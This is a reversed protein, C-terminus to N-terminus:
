RLLLNYFTLATCMVGDIDTGDQILQFLADKSMFTTQINESPELKVAHTVIADKALVITMKQALIGPLPYCSGLVEFSSATCGTEELLERKAADLPSENADVLGGAFGYVHKGIAHRYERTVLFENTPSIAIVSVSQASSAIIFYDQEHENHYRLREKRVSIAGDVVLTSHVTVPIHKM